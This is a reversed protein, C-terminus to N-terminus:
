EGFHGKPGEGQPGVGTVLYFTLQNTSTDKFQTDTDDGDESTVDIFNEVASPDTARYVKYSTLGPYPWWRLMVGDPEVQLDDFRMEPTAEEPQQGCIILSWSNLTGTDGGAADYIDMQWAGAAAPEGNFADLSEAPTLDEGYTGIIDNSSGGSRNHLLVHTGSPSLLEIELDGIYTHSINVEVKTEAVTVAEPYIVQSYTYAYDGIPQPTDDAPEAHCAPGGVDLFFPDTTGSEDASRWRLAFGVKHGDPALPDVSIAYHPAISEGSEGVALDPFAAEERTVAAFWGTPVLEASVSTASRGMNRVTVALDASEGPDLYGDGGTGDDVVSSEYELTTPLPILAFDYVDAAGGYVEIPITQTGYGLATAELTYAGPLVVRHYDGVDPDTYSPWPNDDIYIEADLPLGTEADTVIGRVGLLSGEFYTLMSERNDDWFGPLTSGSPWKTNSVELTMDWGGSWVYFWDQMGGHIAYWAAGNTIGHYFSSSTWMPTNHVTYSEALYILAADDPDPTPSEVSQNEPNNDFPYNAVLAGGHYNLSVIPRRDLVWNMVNATEPQRGDTTNVADVFQDPFNRNLDYGNANYRQGLATGDPNMSPMIRIETSNVLDTIRPDTGYNDTLYNILNFCLEKGVVEDGHMSSIYHIEPEDEEVDPNDTIEMMWLERGQVSQGITVLDTIDPHDAAITALDSTLTEYTHYTTPVRSGVNEAVGEIQMRALGIKGEHPLMTLEFGLHELKDFEERVLLVRAWGDFVAEIDIDLDRLLGLDAEKDALEVRAQIYPGPEGRGAAFAATPICILALVLAILIGRHVSARM